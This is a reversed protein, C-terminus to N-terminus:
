QKEKKLVIKTLMEKNNKYINSVQKTKAREKSTHLILTKSEALWAVDPKGICKLKTSYSQLM